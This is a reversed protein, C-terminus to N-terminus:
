KRTEKELRMFTVSLGAPDEPNVWQARLELEYWGATPLELTGLQSGTEAFYRHNVGDTQTDPKLAASCRQAGCCLCVKHGGVWKHYKQTNTFLIAEYTGPETVYVRWSIYQSVSRWHEVVGDINVKMQTNVNSWYEGLVRDVAQTFVPEEVRAHEMDHICCKCGPLLIINGEQQRLKGDTKWENEMGLRLVTVCDDFRIGRLNLTLVEGEQQFLIPQNDMGAASHVVAGVGYLRLQQMPEKLYLFLDNGKQASWGFSFDAEFASPKTGHIADAYLQMWQAVRELVDLEPQPIAGSADPGVNLLLNAGKATLGCLEEIVMKPTKFNRDNRKYGWTDNLTAATEACGDVKGYPIENDGLCLFDSDEARGGLRGNILCQPQLSKVFQRLEVAREATIGWPVDFWILGLEGYGSLLERLQTKCKGNLYKEFNRESEPTEFDWTNGMADPEHFDVGHSYYVCPKLGHRRAAETIERFVDRRVGCRAPFSYDDYKTPYMAFGEHHKATFVVYKMGAREALAMLKEADFRDACLKEAYQAYQAGPIRERSQIWEVIGKTEKEGIFGETASYLGWHIFLGFRAAEFWEIRSDDKALM